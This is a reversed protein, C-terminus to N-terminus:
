PQHRLSSRSAKAINNLAREIASQVTEHEDWFADQLGTVVELDGIRGLGTAAAERVRWYPDHLAELLAELASIEAHLGLTRAANMRVRWAPDHLAKLLPGLALDSWHYYLARAAWARIWYRNKPEQMLKPVGVGGLAVLLEESIDSPHQAELAVLLELTDLKQRYHATSKPMNLGLLIM